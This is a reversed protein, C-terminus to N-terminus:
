ERVLRTPAEFATPQTKLLFHTRGLPLKRWGCWRLSELRTLTQALVHKEVRNRGQCGPKQLDFLFGTALASVPNGFLKECRSESLIRVLDLFQNVDPQQQDYGLALDDVVDLVLPPEFAAASGHPVGAGQVM